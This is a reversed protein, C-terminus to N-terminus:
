LVLHERGAATFFRKDGYADFGSGEAKQVIDFSQRNRNLLSLSYTVPIVSDFREDIRSSYRIEQGKYDFKLTGFSLFESEWSRLGRIRKVGDSFDRAADSETKLRFAVFALSLIALVYNMPAGYLASLPFMAVALAMLVADAVFFPCCKM